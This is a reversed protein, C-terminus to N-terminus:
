RLTVQLATGGRHVTHVVKRASVERLHKPDPHTVMESNKGQILTKAQFRQNFAAPGM